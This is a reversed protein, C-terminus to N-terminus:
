SLAAIGPLTQYALFELMASGGVSVFSFKELLNFKNLAAITDGGGACTFAQLSTLYQAIELTGNEYGSTEFAGLPGAWIVTKASGLLNKYNQITQPGIDLNDKAYDIPLIVNSFKQSQNQYELGCRGGLLVSQSIKALSAITPMKSEIKAGGIITILPQKPSQLLKTLTEVEQELRLGAYAPLYKPIGVISTHKRHSTAFSENIYIDANSALQQAVEDDNAEERPDFRLNELLQYNETGLKDDFYQKLNHTSLHKPKTISEDPTPRGIHGALILKANKELIYKLTPLSANLRYFDEINGNNDLVDMDIRVFVRTNPKIDAEKLTKM